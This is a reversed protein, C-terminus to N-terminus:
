LDGHKKKKKTFSVEDDVTDAAVAFRQGGDEILPRRFTLEM